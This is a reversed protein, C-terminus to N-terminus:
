VTRYRIDCSRSSNGSRADGCRTRSSVSATPRRTLQRTSRGDVVADAGRPRRTLRDNLSAPGSTTRSAASRSPIDGADHAPRGIVATACCTSTGTERSAPSTSLSNTWARTCRRSVTVASRARLADLTDTAPKESDAAGTSSSARLATARTSSAVAATIRSLRRPRARRITRIDPEATAATRALRTDLFAGIARDLADGDLRELLRRVTAPHPAPIQGTLPDPAFGLARLAWIPADTIWESIAALSKAGTLVGAAM